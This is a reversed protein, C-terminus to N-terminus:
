WHLGLGVGNTVKVLDMIQFPKFRYDNPKKKKMKDFNHGANYFHIMVHLGVTDPWPKTDQHILYVPILLGHPNASDISVVAAYEYVEHRNM